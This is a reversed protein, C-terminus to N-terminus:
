LEALWDNSIGVQECSLNWLKKQKGEDFSEKSSAQIRLQKARTYEFYHGGTSAERSTAVLVQCMAADEVTRTVSCCLKMVGDLCCRLFFKGICGSDRILGTAPVFGPSLCSCVVPLHMARIKKELEYTHLINCLKSRCYAEKANFKVNIEKEKEKEDDINDKGGGGAGLSSKQRLKLHHANLFEPITSSEENKRSKNGRSSPDHLSSSVIVVRAPVDSTGAIVLLPMLLATLLFHGLHNVQYFSEHGDITMEKETTRTGWGKGANNILISVGIEKLQPVLMEAREKFSKVSILSALDLHVYTSNRIEKQAAKGLEERRCGLVVHYGMDSLKKATNFGMSPRNAGTIVVYKIVSSRSILLPTAPTPDM